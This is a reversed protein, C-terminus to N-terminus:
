GAALLKLIRHMVPAIDESCLRYFAFPIGDPGPNSDNTDLIAAAMDDLTPLAQLSGAPLCTDYDALYNDLETLSDQVPRARWVKGWSRRAMDGM